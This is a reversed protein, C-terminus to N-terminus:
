PLAIRYDAQEATAAVLRANAEDPGLAWSRADTATKGFREHRRVLRDIRVDHEVEVYFTLDLLPATREWGGSGLLLYNGEVVVFRIEPAIRIADPVPEEIERDFGPALITEGSNPSAGGSNPSIAGSNPSAFARRVALLTARFAEVDFTDPAGMRDRRGLEVLRAQPLHFGDAPLLAARPGLVGVLREALTSKGAGPAGAIGVVIRQDTPQQAVVVAAVEEVSRLVKRATLPHRAISM